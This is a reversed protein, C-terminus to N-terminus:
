IDKQKETGLAEECEAITLVKVFPRSRSDALKGHSAPLTTFSPEPWPFEPTKLILGSSM